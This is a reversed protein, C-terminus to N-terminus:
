WHKFTNQCGQWDCSCKGDHVFPMTLNLNKEAKKQNEEYKGFHNVATVLGRKRQTKQYCFFFFNVLGFNPKHRFSQMADNLGGTVCMGISWFWLSLTFRSHLVESIPKNSLLFTCSIQKEPFMKTPFDHPRCLRHCPVLLWTWVSASHVSQLDDGGLTNQKWFLIIGEKPFM